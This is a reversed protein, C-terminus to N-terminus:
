SRGGRKNRQYLKRRYEKRKERWEPSEKRTRNGCETTCHDHNPFKQLFWRGCPCERVKNLLEAEALRMIVLIVNEEDSLEGNRASGWQFWAEGLMPVLQPRFKYRALLKDIQQAEKHSAPSVRIENTNWSAIRAQAAAYRHLIETVRKWGAAKKPTDNLWRILPRSERWGTFIHPRHKTSTSKTNAM